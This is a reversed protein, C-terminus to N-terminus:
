DNIMLLLYELQDLKEKAFNDNTKKWIARDRCYKERVGPIISLLKNKEDNM